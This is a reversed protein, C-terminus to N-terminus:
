GEGIEEVAIGWVSKELKFTSYIVLLIFTRHIVRYKLMEFSKSVTISM